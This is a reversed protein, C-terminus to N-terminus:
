NIAFKKLVYNRQTLVFYSKGSCLFLMFLYTGIFLLIYKGVVRRLQLVEISFTFFM